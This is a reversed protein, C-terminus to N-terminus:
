RVAVLDITFVLVANAPIPGNPQDGYGLAPPIILQRRGGVRMGAVGEDFGPIMQHAGLQFTLPAAAAANADFQTGDPLHGTYHVSATRGAVATDGTGSTLDKWYLGDATRTMTTLDVALSPAYTASVIDHPTERNGCGAALALIAASLLFTTRHM